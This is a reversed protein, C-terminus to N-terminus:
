KEWDVNINDVNLKKKVEKKKYVFDKFNKFYFMFSLIGTLVIYFAGVVNNKILYLGSFYFTMSSLMYGVVASILGLVVARKDKRKM